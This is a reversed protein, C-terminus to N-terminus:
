TRQGIGAVVEEAEEGHLWISFSALGQWSVEWGVLIRPTM